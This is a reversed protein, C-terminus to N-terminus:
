AACLCGFTRAQSARCGRQVMWKVGVAADDGLATSPKKALSALRRRLTADESGDFKLRGDGAEEGLGVGVRPRESPGLMGILDDGGSFSPVLHQIRDVLVHTLRGRV